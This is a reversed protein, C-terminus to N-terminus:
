ASLESFSAGQTDGGALLKEIMDSIAEHTKYVGDPDIFLSSTSPVWLRALAALRTESNPESFITHLNAKTLAIAQAQTTM